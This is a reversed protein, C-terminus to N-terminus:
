ERRIKIGGTDTSLEVHALPSDGIEGEISEGVVRKDSRENRIPFDVRVDGVDSDASFSFTSDSPLRLEISGVDSRLSSDEEFRVDRLTIDGVDTKIDFAGEVGTVVVKGVNVVVTLTVDRPVAIDLDVRPTHVVSRLGSPPKSEIEVADSTSQRMRVEFDDLYGEAQRRDRGWAYKVGSIRVEDADGVHVVVDGVDVDVELSVPRSVGFTEEIRETAEVRPVFVDAWSYTLVGGFALGALVLCCCVLLLAIVILAIILPRNNRTQNESM